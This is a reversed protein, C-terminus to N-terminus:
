NHVALGSQPAIRGYCEFPFMISIETSVVLQNHAPVIGNEASFVDYVAAM